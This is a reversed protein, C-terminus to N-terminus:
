IRGAPTGGLLRLVFERMGLAFARDLPRHGMLLRFYIAGYIQDIVIGRDSSPIGCRDLLNELANKRHAEFERYLRHAVTPDYQAEALLQAVMAGVPGGYIEVAAVVQDAIIEAAGGTKGFDAGPVLEELCADMVLEAKTDWWRYITSKGVGAEKAIAEITLDRLTFVGFLSRTATLIAHRTSESRPRGQQQGQTGNGM